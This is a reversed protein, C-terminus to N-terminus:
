QLGKSNRMYQLAWYLWNYDTCFVNVDTINFWQEVIEPTVEDVSNALAQLNKIEITQYWNNGPNTQSNTKFHFIGKKDLGIYVPHIFDARSALKPTTKETRNLLNFLREEVLRM